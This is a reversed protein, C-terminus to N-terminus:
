IVALRSLMHNLQMSYGTRKWKTMMDDVIGAMEVILNPLGRAIFADLQLLSAALDVNLNEGFDM